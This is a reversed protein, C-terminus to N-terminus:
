DEGDGISEADSGVAVVSRNRSSRWRKRLRGERADVADRRSGAFGEVRMETGVDHVREVEGDLPLQGVLNM